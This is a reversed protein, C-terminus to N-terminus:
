TLAKPAGRHRTNGTSSSDVWLTTSQDPLQRATQVLLRVSRLRTVFTAKPPRAIWRAADQTFGSCAEFTVIHVGVRDFPPSPRASLSAISMHAKHNVPTTPMARQFPLAPLRPLGTVTSPRAKLMSYHRHVPRSDSLTTTGVFGPLEPPPFSGSKLHAKSSPSPFPLNPQRRDGANTGDGSRRYLGQNRIWPAGSRWRPPVSGLGWELPPLSCNPPIELIPIRSSQTRREASQGSRHVPVVKASLAVQWVDM